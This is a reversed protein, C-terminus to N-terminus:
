ATVVVADSETGQQMTLTRTVDRLQGVRQAADLLYVGMARVHHSQTWLDNMESVAKDITKQNRAGNEIATNLIRTGRTFADCAGRTNGNIRTLGAFSFPDPVTLFATERLVLDDHGEAKLRQAARAALSEVSQEPDRLYSTWLPTYIHRRRSANTRALSEKMWPMATALAAAYAEPAVSALSPLASRLVTNPVTVHLSLSAKKNLAKALRGRIDPIDADRVVGWIIAADLWEELESASLVKQDTAWLLHLGLSYDSVKPESAYDKMDARLDVGWEISAGAWSGKYGRVGLYSEQVRNKLDFRQVVSMKTFDKGGVRGWKGLGLTFGWSRERTLTKQNLYLELGVGPENAAISATVPLTRARVLDAHFKTLAAQSLSVQLLNLHEKV